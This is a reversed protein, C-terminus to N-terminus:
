EYHYLHMFIYIYIEIVINIFLKAIFLITRYEMIIEWLYGELFLQHKALSISLRTQLDPQTM